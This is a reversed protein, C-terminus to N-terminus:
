SGGAYNWGADAASLSESQKHLIAARLQALEDAAKKSKTKEKENELRLYLLEGYLDHEVTEDEHIVAAGSFEARFATTRTARTTRETTKKKNTENSRKRNADTNFKQQLESVMSLGKTIAYNKVWVPCTGNLDGQQIMSVRTTLPAIREFTYLAKTSALISSKTFGLEEPDMYASKPNTETTMAYADNGNLGGELKFWTQDIEARRNNFGIAPVKYEAQYHQRRSQDTADTRRLLNGYQSRHRAVRDNSCNRWAWALVMEASEYVEGIAKGWILESDSAQRQFLQVDSSPGKVHEFTTQLTESNYALCRKLVEIEDETPPPCITM